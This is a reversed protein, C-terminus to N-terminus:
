SLGSYWDRGSVIPPYIYSFLVCAADKSATSFCPKEFLREIPVVRESMQSDAAFRRIAANRAVAQPVFSKKTLDPRAKHGGM